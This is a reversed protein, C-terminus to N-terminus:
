ATSTAAAAILAISCNFYLREPLLEPLCPLMV